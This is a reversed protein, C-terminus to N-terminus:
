PYGLRGWVARQVKHLDAKGDDTEPIWDSQHTREVTKGRKITDRGRWKWYESHGDAFSFNTGDGHRVPPDDWWREVKYHVAYSDPTVWGEDIFVIREGPRRIQTRNKLWVGDEKTGARALGNMSDVIAYTLLEGRHGTPCRYLKIDKCYPWFAGAKIAEIQKEPELQAGNMFNDHWCVGVWPKEDEHDGSTPTEAQGQQGLPAGNVIKDGNDDAYMTWAFALQKLNNLCVVRKGQERARHLVPMLIVMLIAIIAIVVLLEILTFGTGNSFKKRVPGTLFMKGARNSIKM